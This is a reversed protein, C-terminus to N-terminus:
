SLITEISLNEIFRVDLRPPILHSKFNPALIRSDGSFKRGLPAVYITEKSRDTGFVYGRMPEVLAEKTLPIVYDLEFKAYAPIDKGWPAEYLIPLDNLLKQLETEM